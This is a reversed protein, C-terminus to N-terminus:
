YLSQAVLARTMQRYLCNVTVGLLGDLTSIEETSYDYLWIILATTLLATPTQNPLSRTGWYIYNKTLDVILETGM